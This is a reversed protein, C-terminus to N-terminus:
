LVSGLVVHCVDFLFPTLILFMANRYIPHANVMFNTISKYGFWDIHLNTSLNAGIQVNIPWFYFPFSCKVSIPHLSPPLLGNLICLCDVCGDEVEKQLRPKEKERDRFAAKLKGVEHKFRQVDEQLEEDSIRSVSTPNRNLLPPLSRTYEELDTQLKNEQSSTTKDMNAINNNWNGDTGTLLFHTKTAGPVGPRSKDKHQRTYNSSPPRCDEETVQDPDQNWTNMRAPRDQVYASEHTSDKPKSESQTSTSFHDTSRAKVEVDEDSFEEGSSASEAATKEKVNHPQFLEEFKENLHDAVMRLSPKVESNEVEVWLNECDKELPVNDHEKATEEAKLEDKFVNSNAGTDSEVPSAPFPQSLGLECTHLASKNDKSEM